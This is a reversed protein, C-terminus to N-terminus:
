NWIEQIAAACIMAVEDPREQPLYHGAGEVWCVRINDKEPVLLSARTSELRGAAGYVSYIPMEAQQLFESGDFERVSQWFVAHREPTIRAITGRHGEELEEIVKEALKGFHRGTGFSMSAELSTWGELLVLGAVVANRSAFDQAVMGGLSHGVLLVSEFGLTELLAEVDESLERLQFTKSPDASEGHGRFDVAILRVRPFRGAVDRMILEYGASSCAHGHLFVVVRSSTSDGAEIYALEGWELNLRNAPNM